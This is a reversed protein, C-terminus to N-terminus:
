FKKFILSFIKRIKKPFEITRTEKKIYMKYVIITTVGEM